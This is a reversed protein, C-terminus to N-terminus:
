IKNMIINCENKHNDFKLVYYLSTSYKNYNGKRLQKIYEYPINFFTYFDKLSSFVFEKNDVIASVHKASQSKGCCARRTNDRKSLYRLNDIHNNLQNNDIHDVVYGIPCEGYFTTMMINHLCIHYRKDNVYLTHRIYPKGSRNVRYYKQLEKYKGQKISFLRGSKTVYYKSYITEYLILDNFKVCKLNSKRLVPNVADLLYEDGKYPTERNASEKSTM